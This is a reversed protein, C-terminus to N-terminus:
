FSVIYGIDTCPRITCDGILTSLRAETFHESRLGRGDDAM